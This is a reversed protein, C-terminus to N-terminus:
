KCGATALLTKAEEHSHQGRSGQFITLPAGFTFAGELKLGEVLPDAANRARLALAHLLSTSAYGGGLSHGASVYVCANCGPTLNGLGFSQRAAACVAIQILVVGFCM